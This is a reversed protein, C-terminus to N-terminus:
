DDLLVTVEHGDVVYRFKVLEHKADFWVAARWDGSFDFREVPIKQGPLALTENSRAIKVTMLKFTSLDFLLTRHAIAYHWVSAPFAQDPLEVPKGNLIGKYQAPGRELSAEYIKGDDDTRARLNSLEGRRWEEHLSQEFNFLKMGLISLSARTKLSEVEGAEGYQITYHIQGAKNGDIHISGFRNEARDSAHAATALSVLVAFAALRITKM